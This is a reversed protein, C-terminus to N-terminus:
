PAAEVEDRLDEILERSIRRNREERVARRLAEGVVASLTTHREAARERVFAVLDDPLSLSLRGRLRSESM